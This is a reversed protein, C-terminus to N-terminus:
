NRTKEPTNQHESQQPTKHSLLRVVTRKAIHLLIAVITLAGIQKEMEYVEPRNFVSDEEKM